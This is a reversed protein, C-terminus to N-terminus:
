YTWTYRSAAYSKSAPRPSAAFGRSTLHTNPCLLRGETDKKDLRREDMGVERYYGKEIVWNGM